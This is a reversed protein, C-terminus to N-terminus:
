PETKTTLIDNTIHECSGIKLVLLSDEIQALVIVPISHSIQRRREDKLFVTPHFYLM